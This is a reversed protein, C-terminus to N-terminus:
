VQTRGLNGEVQEGKMWCVSKLTQTPIQPNPPHLRKGMLWLHQSHQIILGSNQTQVRFGNHSRQCADQGRQAETEGKMQLAQTLSGQSTGTGCLSPPPEQTGKPWWNGGGAEQAAPGGPEATVVLWGIQKSFQSVGEPFEAWAEWFEPILSGSGCSLAHCLLKPCLAPGLPARPPGRGLGEAQSALSDGRGGTAEQERGSRWGGGGWFKRM